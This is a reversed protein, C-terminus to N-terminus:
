GRLLREAHRLCRQQVVCLLAGFVGLHVTPLALRYAASLDQSGYGGIMRLM